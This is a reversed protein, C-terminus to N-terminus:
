QETETTTGTDTNEETEKEAEADKPMPLPTLSVQHYECVTRMLAICDKLGRVQQSLDRPPLMHSPMAKGVIEYQMMISANTAWGIRWEHLTKNFTAEKGPGVLQLIADAAEKNEPDDILAYHAEVVRHVCKRMRKIIDNARKETLREILVEKEETM